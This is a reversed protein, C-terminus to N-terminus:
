EKGLVVVADYTGVTEDSEKTSAQYNDKIAEKLADALDEKGSKFFIISSDYTKSANGVSTISFGAEELITKIKAGEGEVGNGNAVRVSSSGFNATSAVATATETITTTKAPELTQEEDAEPTQSAVAVQEQTTSSDSSKDSYLIYLAFATAVVLAIIGLVLYFTGGSKAQEIEFVEENKDNKDNPSESDEIKDLDKKPDIIDMPRPM